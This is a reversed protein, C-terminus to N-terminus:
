LAATVSSPLTAAAPPSARQILQRSLRRATCWNRAVTSATITPAPVNRRSSGSSV